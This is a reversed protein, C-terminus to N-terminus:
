RHLLKLERSMEVEHVALGLGIFGLATHIAMASSTNPLSWFLFDLGTVYGLIAAVGLVITMLSMARRVPRLPGNGVLWVVLGCASLTFAAVTGLAPIGILDSNTLSMRETLLSSRMASDGLVAVAITGLMLLLVSLAFTAILTLKKYKICVVSASMLVFCLATIPKMNVLYSSIYGPYSHNVPWLCFGTIGVVGSVIAGFLM